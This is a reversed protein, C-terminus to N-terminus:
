AFGGPPLYGPFDELKSFARGSGLTDSDYKQAADLAKQMNLLGCGAVGGQEAHLPSTHKFLLDKAQDISLGPAEGLLQGLAATVVGAAMSTGSKFEFGKPKNKLPATSFIADGATWIFYPGLQPAPRSSFDAPQEAHRSAATAGVLLIRGRIRPHQTIAALGETNPDEGIIEASNGAAIVILKESEALGILLELMYPDKFDLRWSLNIVRSDSRILEEFAKDFPMRMRHRGNIVMWDEEKLPNLVWSDSSGVRVPIIGVEESVLQAIIGAIHTGHSSVSEEARGFFAEMSAAEDLSHNESEANWGEKYLLRKKLFPHSLDFGSDVISVRIPRKLPRLHKLKVREWLVAKAKEFLKWDLASHSPRLSDDIM